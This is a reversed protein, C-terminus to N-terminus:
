ASFRFLDNELGKLSSDANLLATLVAPKLNADLTAQLAATLSAHQAAMQARRGQIDAKKGRSLDDGEPKDKKNNKEDEKAKDRDEERRDVNPEDGRRIGDRHANPTTEEHRKFRDPLTGDDYKGDAPKGRDGSSSKNEYDMANFLAQDSVGARDMGKGWQNSLDGKGPNAADFYTSVVHGGGAGGQGESGRFLGNNANVVAISWNGAQGSEGGFDRARAAKAATLEAASGVLKVSPDVNALENANMFNSQAFVFQGKIGANRGMFGEQNVGVGAGSAVFATAKGDNTRFPDGTGGPKLADANFAYRQEGGGDSDTYYQKTGEQGKGQQHMHNLMGGQMLQSSFNRTNDVDQAGQASQHPKLMSSPIIARFNDDGTYTGHLTAEKLQNTYRAPDGFALGEQITTANCTGNDGQDIARPKAIDNMGGAVSRLVDPKEMGSRYKNAPDLDGQATKALNELAKAKQGETIDTRALFTERDRRMQDGNPNNEFANDLIRSSEAIRDADTTPTDGPKLATREASSDTAAAPALPVDAASPAPGADTAAPAATALSRTTSAAPPAGAAAGGTPDATTAVEGTTSRKVQPTGDAAVQEGNQNVVVAAPDTPRDGPAVTHVNDAEPPQGTTRVGEPKEVQEPAGEGEAGEEGDAGLEGKTKPASPIEDLEEPENDYKDVGTRKELDVIEKGNADTKIASDLPEGDPGRNISRLEAPTMEAIPKDALLAEPSSGDTGAKRMNGADMRDNDIPQFRDDNVESMINDFTQKEMEKAPNPAKDNEVTNPPAEAVQAEEPKAM